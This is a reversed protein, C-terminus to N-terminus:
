EAPVEEDPAELLDVARKSWYTPLRRVRELDAKLQELRGLGYARETLQSMPVITVKGDVFVTVIPDQGTM